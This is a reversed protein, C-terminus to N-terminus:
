FTFPNFIGCSLKLSKVLGDPSPFVSSNFMGDSSSGEPDSPPIVTTCYDDGSTSSHSSYCEEAGYFRGCKIGRKMIYRSCFSNFTGLQSSLLVNEAHYCVDKGSFSGM